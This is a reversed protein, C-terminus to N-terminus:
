LRGKSELAVLYGEDYTGLIRAVREMTYNGGRRNVRVLEGRGPKETTIPLWAGWDGNRLQYPTANRIKKM